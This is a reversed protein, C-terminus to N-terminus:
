KIIDDIIVLNTRTAAKKKVLSRSQGMSAAEYWAQSLDYSRMQTIHDDHTFRKPWAQGNWFENSDVYRTIGWPIPKHFDQWCWRVGEKSYNHQPPLQQMVCIVLYALSIEPDDKLLRNAVKYSHNYSKIRKTM